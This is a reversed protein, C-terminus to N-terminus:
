FKTTKSNLVLVPTIKLNAKVEENTRLWIEMNRTVFMVVNALFSCFYVVVSCTRMFQGVVVNWLIRWIKGKSIRQGYSVKCKRISPISPYFNDKSYFMFLHMYGLSDLIIRWRYSPFHKGRRWRENWAAFTM